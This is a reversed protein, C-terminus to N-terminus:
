RLLYRFTWDKVNFATVEFSRSMLIQIYFIIQVARFSILCSLHSIDNLHNFFTPTVSTPKGGYCAITRGFFKYKEM